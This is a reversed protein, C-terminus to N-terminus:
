ASTDPRKCGCMVAVDILSDRHIAEDREIRSMIEDALKAACVSSSSAVTMTAPACPRLRAAAIRCADAVDLIYPTEFGM